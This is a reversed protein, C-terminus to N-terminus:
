DYAVTSNIIGGHRSTKVFLLILATSTRTCASPVQMLYCNALMFSNIIMFIHLNLKASYPLVPEQWHYPGFLALLAFVTRSHLPFSPSISARYACRILLLLVASLIRGFSRKFSTNFSSFLSAVVVLLVATTTLPHQFIANTTPPTTIAVVLADRRQRPAPDEQPGSIHFSVNTYFNCCGCM